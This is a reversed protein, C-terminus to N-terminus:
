LFFLWKPDKKKKLIELRHHVNSCARGLLLTCFGLSDRTHNKPRVKLLYVSVPNGDELMNQKWIM